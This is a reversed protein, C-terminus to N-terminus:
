EFRDCTVGDERQIPSGPRFCLCHVAGCYPCLTPTEKCNLCRTPHVVTIDLADSVRISERSERRSL